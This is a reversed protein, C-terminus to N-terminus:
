KGTGALWRAMYILWKGEQPSSASGLVPETRALVLNKSKICVPIPKKTKKKDMLMMRRECGLRSGISTCPTQYMIMVAAYMKGEELVWWM